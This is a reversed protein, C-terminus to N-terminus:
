GVKNLGLLANSGEVVVAREPNLLRNVRLHREGDVFDKRLRRLMRLPTLSLWELRDESVIALRHHPETNLIEFLDDSNCVAAQRHFLEPFDNSFPERSRLM